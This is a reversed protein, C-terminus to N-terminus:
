HRRTYPVSQHGIMNSLPPQQVKRIKLPLLNKNEKDLILCIITMVPGTTYKKFENRLISVPSLLELFFAFAEAVHFRKEASTVKGDGSKVYMM